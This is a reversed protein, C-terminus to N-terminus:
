FFNVYNEKKKYVRHLVWMRNIHVGINGQYCVLALIMLSFRVRLRLSCITKFYCSVGLIFIQCLDQYCSVGKGLQVSVSTYCRVGEGLQLFLIQLKLYIRVVFSLFDLM